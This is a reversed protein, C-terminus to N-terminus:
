VKLLVYVAGVGGDKPQASTYALVSPTGQLHQCTLSKLRAFSNQKANNGKGHIILLHRRKHGQEIAQQYQATLFEQLRQIADNANCGHLDISADIVSKGSKFQKISKQQLGGRYFFVAEKGTVEFEYLLHTSSENCRVNFYEANKRRYELGADQKDHRKEKGRENSALKNKPKHAKVGGEFLEAFSEKTYNSDSM